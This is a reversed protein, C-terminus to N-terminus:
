SLQHDEEVSLVSVILCSSCIMGRMSKGVWECRYGCARGESRDCHAFWGPQQRLVGGGVKDLEQSGM